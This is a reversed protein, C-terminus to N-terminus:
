EKVETSTVQTTVSNKAESDPIAEDPITIEKKLVASAGLSATFHGDAPVTTGGSIPHGSAPTINYSQGPVCTLTKGTATDIYDPYYVTVHGYYQSSM